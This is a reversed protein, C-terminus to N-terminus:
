KEGKQMKSTNIIQKEEQIERIVEELKKKLMEEGFSETHAAVLGEILIQDTNETKPNNGTTKALGILAGLLEERLAM